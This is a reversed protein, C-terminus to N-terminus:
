VPNKFEFTTKLILNFKNIVQLFEPTTNHLRQLTHTIDYSYSFYLYPTNLASEIM